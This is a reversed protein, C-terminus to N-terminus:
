STSNYSVEGFLQRILGESLSGFNPSIANEDNGSDTEDSETSLGGEDNYLLDSIERGDDITVEAQLSTDDQDMADVDVPIVHAETDRDSENETDKLNFAFKIRFCAHFKPTAFYGDTCVENENSCILTVLAVLSNDNALSAKNVPVSYHPIAGWLLLVLM